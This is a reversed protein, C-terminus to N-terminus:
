GFLVCVPDAGLHCRACVCFLTSNLAISISALSYASAVAVMCSIILPTDHEFKLELSLM